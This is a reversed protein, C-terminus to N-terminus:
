DYFEDEEEYFDDDEDSSDSLYPKNLCPTEAQVNLRWEFESIQREMAEHLVGVNPPDFLLRTKLYLYSKVMEIPESDGFFDSWTEKEGSISFGKRPGVGLQQLVTFASNIHIIIDLDFVDYDKDIGLLKKTNILISDRSCNQECDM